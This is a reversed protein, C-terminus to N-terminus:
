GGLQLVVVVNMKHKGNCYELWLHIHKYLANPKASAILKHCERLSM